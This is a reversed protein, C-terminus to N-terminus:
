RETNVKIGRTKTTEHHPALYLAIGPAAMLMGLLVV